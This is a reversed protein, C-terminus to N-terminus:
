IRFVCNRVHLPVNSGEPPGHIGYVTGSSAIVTETNGTAILDPLIVPAKVFDITQQVFSHSDALKVVKVEDRCCGEKAKMGCTDCDNGSEDHGFVVEAIKGMCYHTNVIVGSSIALYVTALFIVLVKKM